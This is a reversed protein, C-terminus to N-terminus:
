FTSQLVRQIEDEYFFNHDAVVEGIVIIGPKNCDLEKYIYTADSLTGVMCSESSLTGNQIVAFPTNGGRYKMVSQAIDKLKRVGMLIVLTASSQAALEFDKSFSQEKTTATLVWFSSSVGRKTVPIGQSAPVAIASTIGPVVEVPLGFSQAYDIEESARGFVFPDGGKLRVAHGYTFASEVLLTNIEDQTYSHKACRKGVYIKPVHNPIELLLAEDVLADYLVVDASQLVRLGRVTILDSSGPGAGVLSVRAKM